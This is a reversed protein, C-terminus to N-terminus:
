NLIHKYIDTYKQIGKELSYYTYAEKQLHSIDINELYTDLQSIITQYASKEFDKVLIGSQSNEIIFDTDGVNTNAIVPIGMAMLEGQKTPSSAKKSFLPKIFFISVSSLSILTPVDQRKGQIIKIDALDINKSKANGEIFERPENSIFLFKANQYKVKLEIFFDLMEDLMYWTGVSGLYSIVFDDDSLGLQKQFQQRSTEQINDISFHNLDACCPIVEIPIPNNTVEKWTHIEKKANETLSVTYDAERLLEKEKKKFYKYIRGFVPNKLNWINGDIREDAWFGRMDFIMKIDFKKKLGLGIIAPIYSRCHAIKFDREKHLAIANKNIQYIDYITSLVPPSKHYVVPQWDIGCKELLSAITNKNEQYKEPKECSLLTVKYGNESLGKLYPIVQSQGLPDTMGDYSIFITNIAM